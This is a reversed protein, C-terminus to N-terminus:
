RSDISPGFRFLLREYGPGRSSDAVVGRGRFYTEEPVVRVSPAKVVTLIPSIDAALAADQLTRTGLAEVWDLMLFRDDLYRAYVLAGSPIAHVVVTHPSSREIQAVVDKHPNDGSPERNLRWLGDTWLVVVIAMLMNRWRPPIRSAIGAALVAVAFLPPFSYRGIQRAWTGQILDFALLGAAAAILWGILLHSGSSFLIRPSKRLGTALGVGIVALLIYDTPGRRNLWPGSTLLYTVLPRIESVVPVYGNPREELWGKTVRWGSISEPLQMYWPLILVVTAAMCGALAWRNSRHPRILLWSACALWSFVVFYHTLLGAASALVWGAALSATFGRKHIKVTLLVVALTLLATHPYMRGLAGYHVAQPALAAIGAAILGATSGFLVRGLMWALPVCLAGALASFARLAIDSTGTLRTWLNLAVYYLPPSTDSLLVARLVRGLGAPENDHRAFRRYYEPSVPKRAQIFDGLMSDSESAPQELSHGTAMAISFMEDDHLGQRNAVELRLALALTALVFVILSDRARVTV